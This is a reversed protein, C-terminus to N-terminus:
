WGVALYFHRSSIRTPASVAPTVPGCCNSRSTARTHRPSLATTGFRQNNKWWLIALSTAGPQIQQMLEVRGEEPFGALAVPLRLVLGTGALFFTGTSCLVVRVRVQLLCRLVCRKGASLIDRVDRAVLAGLEWVRLYPFILSRRIGALAVRTEVSASVDATPPAEGEGEEVPAVQPLSFSLFSSLVVSATQLQISM